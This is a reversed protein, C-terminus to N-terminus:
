SGSIITLELINSCAYLHYVHSSVSIKAAHVPVASTGQLCFDWCLSTCLLKLGVVHSRHYSIGGLSRRSRHSRAPNWVQGPNYYSKAPIYVPGWYIDRIGFLKPIKKQHFFAAM